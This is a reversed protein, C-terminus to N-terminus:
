IAKPPQPVDSFCLCGRMQGWKLCMAPHTFCLENRRTFRMHETQNIFQVIPDGCGVLLGVLGHTFAYIVSVFIEHQCSM